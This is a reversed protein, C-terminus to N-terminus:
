RWVQMLDKKVKTQASSISEVKGKTLLFSRNVTICSDSSFVESLSPFKFVHNFSWEMKKM